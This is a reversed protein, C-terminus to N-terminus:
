GSVNQGPDAAITGGFPERLWPLFRLHLIAVSRVRMVTRGSRALGTRVRGGVASKVLGSATRIHTCPAPTTSGTVPM